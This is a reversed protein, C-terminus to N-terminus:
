THGPYPVGSLRLAEKNLPATAVGALKGAMAARIAQEVFIFGARGCAASVKGPEINGAEIAACDVISPETVTERKDWETLPLVPCDIAPLGSQAIRKLLGADGFVVPVCQDLVAPERLARLCLEPGIGAPDGMTLGLVSKGSVSNRMM